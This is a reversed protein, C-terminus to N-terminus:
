PQGEPHTTRGNPPQYDFAALAVAVHFAAAALALALTISM